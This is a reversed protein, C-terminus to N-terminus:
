KLDLMSMSSGFIEASSNGTPRVMLVFACSLAGAFNSVPERTLLLRTEPLQRMLPVTDLEM